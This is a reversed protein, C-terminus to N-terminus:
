HKHVQERTDKQYAVRFNTLNHPISNKMSNFTAGELKYTM